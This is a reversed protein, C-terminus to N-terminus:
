GELGHGHLQVMISAAQFAAAGHLEILAAIILDLDYESLSEAIDAHLYNLATTQM